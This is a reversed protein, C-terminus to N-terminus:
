IKNVDIHTVDVRKGLRETFYGDLSRLLKRWNGAALAWNDACTNLSDKEFYDPCIECLIDAIILGDSLESLATCRKALSFTNVWDVIAQENEEM